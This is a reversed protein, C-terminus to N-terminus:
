KCEMIVQEATKNILSSMRTHRQGHRNRCAWGGSSVSPRPKFVSAQNSLKERRWFRPVPLSMSRTAVISYQFHRGFDRLSHIRRGQATLEVEYGGIEM